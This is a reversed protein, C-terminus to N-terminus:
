KEPPKSSGKPPWPIPKDLAEFLSKIAEPNKLAEVAVETPITLGEGRPGVKLAVGPGGTRMTRVCMRVVEALSTYEGGDVQEQIWDADKKPFTVSVRIGKEEEESLM